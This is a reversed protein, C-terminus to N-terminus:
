PTTVTCGTVAELEIEVLQAPRNLKPTEVMTFLPRVEKFRETYAAAVDKAFAMDTIYAKVKIVDSFGAEARALLEGFKAFIFGAQEFASEGYVSGDPQVATTGGIYIHDGVKVMRSYGAIEELPAGSSYNTREKM